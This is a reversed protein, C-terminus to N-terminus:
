TALPAHSLKRETFEAWGVVRPPAGSNPVIFGPAGAFQERESEPIPKVPEIRYDFYWGESVHRGQSFGIRYDPHDLPTEAVHREAAARAEKYTV